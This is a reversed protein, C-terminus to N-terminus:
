TSSAAGTPQYRLNLWEDIATSMEKILAPHITINLSQSWQVTAVLLNERAKSLRRSVSAQSLALERMIQQQTLGQQYYLRLIDQSQSDLKAIADSLTQNLQAQQSAWDATEEEAVLEGLLSEAGDAALMDQIETTDEGFKPTNLSGVPPYLYSRVWGASQSLWQELTAATVPAANPEGPMLRQPQETHYLCALKEWFAADPKPLREAPTPPLYLTKFCVWALLYRSLASESLGGAKLAELLRKKSIRRLLSWNSCLDVIQRQRLGDRLISSFSISAYTRLNAGREPNFGKLVTNVEAIAIQFCDSLRYQSDAFKRVTQRAAWYCAEQLYATLHAHAPERQKHWLKHWYMVWFRESDPAEAAEQQLLQQMRRRLRADTIWRDVQDAEFQLFTSFLATIQQRPRM